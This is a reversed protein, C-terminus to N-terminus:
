ADPNIASMPVTQEHLTGPIRIRCSGKRIRSVYVETGAPHVEQSHRVQDPGTVGFTVPRTTTAILTETM